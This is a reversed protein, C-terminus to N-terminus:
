ASAAPDEIVEIDWGAFRSALEIYDSSFCGDPTDPLRRVWAIARRSREDLELRTVLLPSLALKVMRDPFSSWMTIAVAEGLETAVRKVREGRMGVCVGIVDLEPDDSDVAIKIRQGPDRALARIVVKGAAIEPVERAFLAAIRGDPDDSGIRNM